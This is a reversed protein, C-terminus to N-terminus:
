KRVNIIDGQEIMVYVTQLVDGAHLDNHYVVERSYGNIIERIFNKYKDEDILDEFFNYRNFIEYAMFHLTKTGVLSDLSFIDFEFSNIKDLSNKVSDILHTPLESLSSSKRSDVQFSIDKLMEDISNLSSVSILHSNKKLISVTKLKKFSNCSTAKVIDDEQFKAQQVKSAQALWDIANDMKLQKGQDIVKNVEPEFM